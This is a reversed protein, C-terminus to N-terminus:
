RKPLKIKIPHNKPIITGKEVAKNEIVAMEVSHQIKNLFEEEDNEDKFFGEEFLISDTYYKSQATKM